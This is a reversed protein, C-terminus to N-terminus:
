LPAPPGPSSVALLVQSPSPGLGWRPSAEGHPGRAWSKPDLAALAGPPATPHGLGPLEAKWVSDRGSRESDWCSRGWLRCFGGGLLNQRFWGLAARM